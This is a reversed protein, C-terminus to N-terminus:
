FISLLFPMLSILKALFKFLFISLHGLTGIWEPPAVYQRGVMIVLIMVVFICFMKVFSQYNVM